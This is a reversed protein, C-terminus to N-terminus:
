IFVFMVDYHTISLVSILLKIVRQYITAIRSLVKCLIGNVKYTTTNDSNDAYTYM